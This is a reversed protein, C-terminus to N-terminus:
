WLRHLLGVFGPESLSLGRQVQSRVPARDMAVERPRKKGHVSEVDVGQQLGDAVVQRAAFVHLKGALEVGNAIHASRVVGRQILPHPYAVELHGIKRTHQLRAALQQASAGFVKAQASPEGFGARTEVSKGAQCLPQLGGALHTLSKPTANVWLGVSVILFFANAVHIPQEFLDFFQTGGQRQGGRM